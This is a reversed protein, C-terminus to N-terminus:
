GRPAGPLTVPQINAWRGDFLCRLQQTAESSATFGVSRTRSIPNPGPMATASSTRAPAPCTYPRSWESTISWCAELRLAAAMRAPTNGDGGPRAAGAGRRVRGASGGALDLVQQPAGTERLHASLDEWKVRWHDTDEGDRGAWEGIVLCLRSRLVRREYEHIFNEDKVYIFKVLKSM